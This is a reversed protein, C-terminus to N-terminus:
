VLASFVRGSFIPSGYWYMLMFVLRIREQKGILIVEKGNCDSLLCSDLENQMFGISKIVKILKKYFERTSQVLGYITKKIQLYYDHDENIVESISM